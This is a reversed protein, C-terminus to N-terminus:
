VWNTEGDSDALTIFAFNRNEIDKKRENVKLIGLIPRPRGISKFHFKELAQDFVDLSSGTILIPVYLSNTIKKAAKLIMEFQNPIKTDCRFDVLVMSIIHKIITTRLVFYNNSNKEQYIAYEHLKNFFRWQLFTKERSIELLDKNFPQTFNPLEDKEILSFSKGNLNVSKPFKNININKRVISIPFWLPNLINIYKRIEGLFQKGLKLNIKLALPGSGTAFINPHMKKNQIMLELGWLDKRYREEVILDFGWVTDIKNDQYYFSMSSNITEGVISGKEDLLLIIDNIAQPSKSLWFDLYRKSDIEKEPFMRSNFEHLAKVDSTKATRIEM